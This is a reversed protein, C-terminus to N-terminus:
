IKKTKTHYFEKPAVKLEKGDITGLYKIVTDQTKENEKRDERLIKRLYGSGESKIPIYLEVKNGIEPMIYWGTSGETTYNSGFSYLYDKSEEQNKDIELFDIQM